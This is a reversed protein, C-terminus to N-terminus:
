HNRNTIIEAKGPRGRHHNVVAVPEPHQSSYAQPLNAIWTKVANELFRLARGLRVAASLHQGNCKRIYMDYEAWGFIFGLEAPTLIREM